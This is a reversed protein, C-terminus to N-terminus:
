KPRNDQKQGLVSFIQIGGGPDVVNGIIASSRETEQFIRKLTTPPPLCPQFDKKRRQGERDRDGGERDKAGM